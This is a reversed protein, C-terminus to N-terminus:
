HTPQLRCSVSEMAGKSAYQPGVPKRWPNSFRTTEDNVGYYYTTTGTAASFLLVRGSNWFPKYAYRSKFTQRAGTSTFRNEGYKLLPSALRRLHAVPQRFM